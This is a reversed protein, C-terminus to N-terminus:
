IINFIQTIKTQPKMGPQRAAEREKEGMKPFVSIYNFTSM